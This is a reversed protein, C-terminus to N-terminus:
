FMRRQIAPFKILERGHLNEGCRYDLEADVGAYVNRLFSHFTEQGRGSFFACGDLHLAIQVACNEIRINHPVQAVPPEVQIRWHALTGLLINAICDLDLET